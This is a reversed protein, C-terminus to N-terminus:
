AYKSNIKSIKKDIENIIRAYIVLKKSDSKSINKKAKYKIKHEATAWFDMALTRIQLEMKVNVIAEGIDVQTQCILHLGSYGSKKPAYVYDKVEIININPNQEIMEKITYINNKFPCTVRIGAVDNINEILAKYNLDFNKRKLKSIISEPTKIRCSINNIVDYNYYNKLAIKIDGLEINVKNMAKEYISMLKQFEQKKTDIPVMSLGVLSDQKNKLNNEM